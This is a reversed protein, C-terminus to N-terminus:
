ALAKRVGEDSGTNKQQGADVEPNIVSAWDEVRSESTTGWMRWREETGRWVRRQVVVFEEVEMEKGEREEPTAREDTRKLSQVSKIRVVAQRMATKNGTGDDIPLIAARHSVVKPKGVYRHLTWVYASNKPRASIRSLLQTRLGECALSSRTNTDGDGL